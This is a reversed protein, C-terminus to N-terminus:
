LDKDKLAQLITPLNNVLEVIMAANAQQTPDSQSGNVAGIEKTFSRMAPNPQAKLWFWDGGEAPDTGIAEWPGKTAKEALAELRDSLKTM